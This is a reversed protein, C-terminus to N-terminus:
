ASPPAIVGDIVLSARSAEATYLPPALLDRDGVVDHRPSPRRRWAAVHAAASADPDRHLVRAYQHIAEYVTESLATVPPAWAGRADTYRALLEANGAAPGDQFYSLATRLGEAAHEGMHALTAEDLVLSVTRTTDRLGARVGAREFAVEDAGVLSSLLLDAGARPIAEVIADFDTTGLPTLKEGVVRGGAADIVRRADRHAGHSWVYDQGVLFWRRGGTARMTPGVLAELQDRPREGLRLVTPSGGGGENIVSHVLLVGTREVAARVADFSASTTNVFLARCGLRVMRRAEFAAQEADTGDDATLLSLRRGAVGGDANVEDVALAAMAEASGSYIAGTGSMTTIAGVRVSGDDPPEPLPVGRRHLLWQVGAPPVTARVRVRTRGVGASGFRVCLRGPWPQTHEVVLLSGPVVRSFRGLIELGDGAGDAAPLRMSVAAGEAVRDCRAGFLWGSGESSGFRAFVEHRDLYVTREAAVTTSTM